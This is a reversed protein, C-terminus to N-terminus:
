RAAAVMSRSCSRALRAAPTFTCHGISASHPDFPLMPRPVVRRRDPPLIARRSTVPAAISQRGSCRPPLAPLSAAFQNAVIRQRLPAPRHAIIQRDVVHDRMRRPPSQAAASAICHDSSWQSAPPAVTQALRQRTVGVAGVANRSLRSPETKRQEGTPRSLPSWPRQEATGGAARASAASTTSPSAMVAVSFCIRILVNSPPMAAKCATISSALASSYARSPANSTM